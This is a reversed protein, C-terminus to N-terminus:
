RKPRWQTTETMRILYEITSGGALLLLFLAFTLMDGIQLWAILNGFVGIMIAERLLVGEHVSAPESFRQHLYSLVPLSFGSLGTLSLFFFLWRFELTPRTLYFLMVMGGIGLIGLSIGTLIIKRFSPL